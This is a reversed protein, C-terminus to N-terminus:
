RVVYLSTLLVFIQQNAFYYTLSIIDEGFQTINIGISCKFGSTRWINTIHILSDDFARSIYYGCVLLAIIGINIHLVLLFAALIM